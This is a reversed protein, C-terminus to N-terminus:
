TTYGLMVMFHCASGALVFVHLLEHHGFIGPLFNPRRFAYFLSGVLYFKGGLALWYAGAAPVEALFPYAAFYSVITAVQYCLISLWRPAELWVLKLVVGLTAITWIIALSRFGAEQDAALICLPSFLGAIFLFIAVHDLRQLLRMRSKKLRLGHLASSMAYQILMTGMFITFAVMKRSDGASLELLWALGLAAAIFGLLHSYTNFPESVAKAAKALLGAPLTPSATQPHKM